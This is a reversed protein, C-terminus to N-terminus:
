WLAVGVPQITTLKAFVVPHQKVSTDIVEWHKLRVLSIQNIKLLSPTAKGKTKAIKKVQDVYLQMMGRMTYDSFYALREKTEKSTEVFTRKVSGTEKIRSSVVKFALKKEKVLRKSMEQPLLTKLLNGETEKETAEPVTLLLIKEEIPITVPLALGLTKAEMSQLTVYKVLPKPNSQDKIEDIHITSGESTVWRSFNLLDTQLIWKSFVPKNIVDLRAELSIPQYDMSYLESPTMPKKILGIESLNPKWIFGLVILGIVLFGLFSKKM